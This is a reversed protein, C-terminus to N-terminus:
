MNGLRRQSVRHQVDLRLEKVEFLAQNKECDECWDRQFPLFAESEGSIWGLFRQKQHCSLGSRLINPFGQRWPSWLTLWCWSWSGFIGGHCPSPLSEKTKPGKNKNCLSINQIIKSMIQIRQLQHLKDYKWNFLISPLRQIEKPSNNCKM